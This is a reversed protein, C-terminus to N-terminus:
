AAIADSMARLAEAADSIDDNLRRNQCLSSEFYAPSADDLRDALAVINIPDSAM